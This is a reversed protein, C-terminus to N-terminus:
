WPSRHSASHACRCSAPKPAADDEVKDYDGAKLKDRVLEAIKRGTEPYVYNEDVAKAVAEVLEKRRDATLKQPKIARGPVGGFAVGIADLKGAQEADFDFDIGISDGRDTDATISIVSDSVSVVERLTLKGLQERINRARSIREEIPREKLRKPSRYATEFATVREPTPDAMMELFATVCRGATTEPLKDRPSTDPPMPAALAPRAALTVLVVMWAALLAFSRRLTLFM